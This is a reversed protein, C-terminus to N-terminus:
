GRPSKRSAQSLWWYALMNILVWEQEPFFFPQTLIRCGIMYDQQPEEPHNRYFAIRRRMETLTAAGNSVGLWHVPLIDTDVFVGGGAIFNRPSHLKFLFIEGSKM